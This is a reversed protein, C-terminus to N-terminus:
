KDKRLQDIKVRHGDRTRDRMDEGMQGPVVLFVCVLNSVGAFDLDGTESYPGVATSNGHNLKQVIQCVKSVKRKRHEGPYLPKQLGKM